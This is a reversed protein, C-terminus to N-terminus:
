ASRGVHREAKNIRALDDAAIFAAEVDACPPCAAAGISLSLRVGSVPKSTEIGYRIADVLEDTRDHDSVVLLGFEDGGLRAVFGGPAADAFVTTATRLLQDGAQHGYTDNVWKLRDVDAMIVTVATRGPDAAFRIAAGAVSENWARRNGVQTLPDIRAALMAGEFAEGMEAAREFNETRDRALLALVGIPLAALFVTGASSDVALVAMLGIPALLADIGFMWVMPKPLVRWSIGLARCRIAAVAADITFQFGLASLYIPWHHFSPEPAGAIALVTVPGLCQWGSLVTVLFHHVRGGARARPRGGLLGITVMLPVMPLPLLFMSSVLLPQTAAASGATSEFVVRSGLTQLFGLLLFLGIVSSSPRELQTAAIACVALFGGGLLAATWQDARTVASRDHTRADAIAITDAVVTVVEPAIPGLRHAAPRAVDADMVKYMTM